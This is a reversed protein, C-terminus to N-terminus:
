ALVYLQKLDLDSRHRNEVALLAHLLNRNKGSERPETAM